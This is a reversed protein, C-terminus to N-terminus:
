LDMMDVDGDQTERCICDACDFCLIRERINTYDTKSCFTCFHQQCNECQQSCTICTPKDCHRCPSLEIFQTAQPQPPRHIKNASSQKKAPKFYLLLSHSKPPASESVPQTGASICATRSGVSVNVSCIHCCGGSAITSDDSRAHGISVRETNNMTSFRDAVQDGDKMPSHDMSTTTDIRSRKVPPSLEEQVKSFCRKPTSASSLNGPRNKTCEAYYAAWENMGTGVSFDSGNMEANSGGKSTTSSTASSVQSFTLNNEPISELKLAPSVLLTSNGQTTPMPNSAVGANPAVAQPFPSVALAVEDGGRPNSPSPPVPFFSKGENRRGSHFLRIGHDRDNPLSSRECEDNCSLLQRHRASRCARRGPRDRKRSVGSMVAACPRCCLAPTDNPGCDLSYVFGGCFALTLWVSHM